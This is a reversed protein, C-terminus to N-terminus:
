GGGGTVDAAPKGGAVFSKFYDTWPQGELAGPTRLFPAALQGAGNSSPTLVNTPAPPLVIGVRAAHGNADYNSTFDAWNAFFSFADPLRVRLQDLMPGLRHLVPVMTTLLPGAARLLPEVARAAGPAQATIQAAQALTPRAARMASSLERSAAPLQALAPSAQGLLRVAAPVLARTHTLTANAADLGAPLAALSARIASARDAVTGLLRTTQDVADAMQARRAGLTSAIVRTSHVALQLSAGDDGIAGALTAVQSLAARGDQLSAALATGQGRLSGRLGALIRLLGARTEPDFTSLAQDVQVPSTTRSRPITAGDGLPSGTGQIVSVYDGWESSLSSMRVAARADTRLRVASGISLEAHPWGDRGLWIRGVQGVPVGALRVQAGSVLGRVDTFEARVTYGGPGASVILVAATAAALAVAIPAAARRM